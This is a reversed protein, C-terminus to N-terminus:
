ADASYQAAAAAPLLDVENELPEGRQYRVINAFASKMKENLADRTGAAIHPTVVINPLELLKSGFPPEREFVDLAAGALQGSTLADYLASEDVLPGRATNILYAGKRMRQLAVKDILHRTQTTLPVHLSIVDASSLLEPLDVPKLRLATEREPTLRVTADHYLGNVNFAALREATAQGIRGMGIFGVTLGQLERSVPRLSNVHWRGQRLEADAFPLRKLAALILLVTHEAVGTTTGAPTLALRISRAGLAQCDVTDQYGVGQHQVFRLAKAADIMTRTLATAAVVVIDVDALKSLREEDSDARLTRLRCSSPTAARIIDYVEETAHSLYLIELSM